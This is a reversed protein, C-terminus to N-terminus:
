SQTPPARPQSPDWRSSPTTTAPPPLDVQAVLRVSPLALVSAGDLLTPTPTHRAVCLSCVPCEGPHSPGHSPTQDTEDASGAHCITQLEDFLQAPDAQPVTAGFGLQALLALLVAFLGFPHLRRNLM